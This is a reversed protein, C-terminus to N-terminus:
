AAAPDALLGRYAYNSPVECVFISDDRDMFGLFYDAVGKPTTSSFRVLWESYLVKIAGSNKLAEILKPYDKEPKHLDYSVLFLQM